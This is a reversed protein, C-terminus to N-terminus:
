ESLIRRIRIGGECNVDKIIANIHVVYYTLDGLVYTESRINDSQLFKTSVRESKRPWSHDFLLCKNLSVRVSASIPRM